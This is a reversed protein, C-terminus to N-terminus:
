AWNKIYWEKIEWQLRLVNELSCLNLVTWQKYPNVTYTLTSRCIQGRLCLIGAQDYCIGLTFKSVYCMMFSYFLSLINDYFKWWGPWAEIFQFTCEIYMRVIFGWVCEGSVNAPPMIGNWVWFLFWTFTLYVFLWVIIGWVCESCVTFGWVCEFHDLSM